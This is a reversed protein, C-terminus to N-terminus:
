KADPQRKTQDTKRFGTNLRDHRRDYEAQPEVISRPEECQGERVRTVQNFGEVGARVQKKKVTTRAGWSWGGRSETEHSSKLSVYRSSSFPISLGCPTVAAGV